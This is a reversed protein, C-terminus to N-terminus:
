LNRTDIWQGDSPATAPGLLLISRLQITEVSESYYEITCCRYTDSFFAFIIIRLWLLTSLSSQVGVDDSSSSCWVETFDCDCWSLSSSRCASSLLTQKEEDCASLDDTFGGFFLLLLWSADAATSSSAAVSKCGWPATSAFGCRVHREFCECRRAALHLDCCCCCCCCRPRLLCDSSPLSHDQIAVTGWRTWDILIFMM